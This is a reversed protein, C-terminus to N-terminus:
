RTALQLRRNRLEHAQELAATAELDRGLEPYRLALQERVEVAGWAAADSGRVMAADFLRTARELKAIGQERDGGFLRPTAWDALGDQMVVWPNDPALARAAAIQRRSELGRTIATFAGYRTSMGYCSGLLARAEANEPVRNVMARLEAICYELYRRALSPQNKAALAQRFRAYGAYYAAVLAETPDAEPDKAVILLDNHLAEITALDRNQYAVEIGFLLQETLPSAGACGSWFAAVILVIAPQTVILRGTKARDRYSCILSILCNTM